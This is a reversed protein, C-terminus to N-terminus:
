ALLLSSLETHVRHLTFCLISVPARVVIVETVNEKNGTHFFRCTNM